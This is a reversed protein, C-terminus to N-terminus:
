HQNEASFLMCPSASFFVNRPSLPMFYCKAELRKLTLFRNSTKDGRLLWAVQPPHCIQMALPSGFTNNAQPAIKGLAIWSMLSSQPLCLIIISVTKSLFQKCDHFPCPCEGTQPLIRTLLIGTAHFGTVLSTEPSSLLKVLGLKEVSIYDYFWKNLANEGSPGWHEWLHKHLILCHATYCSFTPLLIYRVPNKEEEEECPLKHNQSKHSSFPM